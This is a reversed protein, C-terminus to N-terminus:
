KMVKKSTGNSRVVYTGDKLEDLSSASVRRGDLTFFEAMKANVEARDLGTPDPAVVSITESAASSQSGFKSVVSYTFSDGVPFDVIVDYSTQGGPVTVTAYPASFQEGAEVTGAMNLNLFVAMDGAPSADVMKLLLISNETGGEIEVDFMSGSTSIEFEKSGDLFSYGDGYMTVQKEAFGVEMVIDDVMSAAMGSITVKGGGYSFNKEDSVLLAPIGYAEYMNTLALMGTACSALYTYWGKANIYGDLSLPKGDYSIITSAVDDQSYPVESFDEQMYYIVEPEDGVTHTRTLSLEYTNAWAAPEWNATFGENTVNTAELAVPTELEGDCYLASYNRGPYSEGNENSAIVTAIVDENADFSYTIVAAPEDSEATYIQDPTNRSYAEFHYHTAGEVPDCSVQIQNGSVAQIQINSPTDLEYIVEEVTVDDVLVKGSWSYFMIATYASSSQAVFEVESWEGYTMPLVSASLMGMDDPDNRLVFYQLSSQTANENVNMVRAKFRFVGKGESFDMEPTMLYGPGNEGVEDFSQYVAGGAQSCWFATWGPVDCLADVQDQDDADVLQTDPADNTGAAWKDFSETIIVNTPNEKMSKVVPMAASQRLVDRVQQENFHRGVETDLFKQIMAKEAADRESPLHLKINQASVSLAAMSAAAFLLFKQM